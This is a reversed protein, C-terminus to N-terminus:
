GDKLVEESDEPSPLMSLAIRSRRLWHAFGTVRGEPATWGIPWGMAWEFFQPNSILDSAFSAKGVRFSVRVQHSSAPMSVARWGMSKMTLWLMSWARTANTLSYQGGPAEFPSTVGIQGARVM